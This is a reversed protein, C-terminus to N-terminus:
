TERKTVTFFNAVPFWFESLQFYNLRMELVFVVISNWRQFKLLNHPKTEVAVKPAQSLFTLDVLM